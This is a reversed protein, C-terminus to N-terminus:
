AEEPCFAMYYHHAWIRKFAKPAIRELWGFRLMRCAFDPDKGSYYDLITIPKAETKPRCKMRKCIPCRPFWKGLLDEKAMGIDPWPPCDFYGSDKLRWGMEGLIRIISPPDINGIRLDPYREPSYDKVQMKYGFGDRNPVSLVIVKQTVRTLESLFNRLEGAFWLASFSFSMDFANGSYDLRQFGENLRADLPRGLDAWLAKVLELREPDDDELTVKLGMDALGLLNIGSVGTFGFSPSELVSSAGHERAFGALLENLVIREYSSGLGEHPQEFYKKWDNIIPIAMM